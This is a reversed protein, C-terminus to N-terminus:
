IRARYTGTSSRVRYTDSRDEQSDPTWSAGSQRSIPHQGSVPDKTYASLAHEMGVEYADRFLRKVMEYTKRDQAEAQTRDNYDAPNSYLAVAHHCLDDVLQYRTAGVDNKYPRFVPSYSIALNYSSLIGSTKDFQEVLGGSLRDIVGQPDNEYHNKRLSACLGYFVEKRLAEMERFILRRSDEASMAGRNVAVLAKVADATEEQSEKVDRMAESVENLAQRTEMAAQANAAQNSLITESVKNLAAAFKEARIRKGEERERNEIASLRRANKQDLYKLFLWGITVVAIILVTIPPVNALPGLLSSVDSAEM